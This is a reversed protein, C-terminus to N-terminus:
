RVRMNALVASDFTGHWCTTEYRQFFSGGVALNTVMLGHAFMM